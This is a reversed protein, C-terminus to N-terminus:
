LAEGLNAQLKHFLRLGVVLMVVGFGATVALNQLYWSSPQLLLQFTEQGSADFQTPNYLVRQFTVVVPTVPNLMAIREAGPGWSDILKNGVLDFPYVVPTLWFLTLLALGLFHEVDRYYVNVAALLVGLGVILTLLSILAPITLWLMSWEPSHRFVALGGFLIILQFGFTALESGIAALPLVERPFWVKQVLPGNGTISSAAATLGATFLNSALLGCLLLLGFRPAGSPIVVAFVISFVALYLLPNLLTWLLGLASDKYKVKLERQVLNALLERYQWISQVRSTLTGSGPGQEVLPPLDSSQVTTM